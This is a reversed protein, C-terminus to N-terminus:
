RRRAEFGRTRPAGKIIELAQGRCVMSLAMYLGNDADRRRKEAVTQLQTPSTAAEGVVGRCRRVCFQVLAHFCVRLAVLGAHRPHVGRAESTGSTWRPGAEVRCEEKSASCSTTTRSQEVAGESRKPEDFAACLKLLAFAPMHVLDTCLDDCMKDRTHMCVCVCRLVHAVSPMFSLLARRPPGCPARSLRPAGLGSSHRPGAAAM